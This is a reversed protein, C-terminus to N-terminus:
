TKKQLVKHVRFTESISEKYASDLQEETLITKLYDKNILKRRTESISLRWINKKKDRIEHKIIKHKKMTTYIINRIESEKEKLQSIKDQVDNYETLLLLLENENKITQM